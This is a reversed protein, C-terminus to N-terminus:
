DGPHEPSKKLRVSNIDLTFGLKELKNIDSNSSLSDTIEKIRQTKKHQRIEAPTTKAAINHHQKQAPNIPEAKNEEVFNEEVFKVKIAQGLCQSLAAEIKQQTNKTILAKIKQNPKLKYLNNNSSELSSNIVVQMAAGKLKLSQSLQYWSSEDQEVAKTPLLDDAASSVNNESSLTSELTNTPMETAIVKEPTIELIADPVVDKKDNQHKPLLTPQLASLRLLAMGLGSEASPALPIHKKAKIALQYYSQLLELSLQESIDILRSKSCSICHIEQTLQYISAAYFSQALADLVVIPDKGLTIIRNSLNILKESDSQIIYGLLEDVIEVEVIGLMTEVAENLVKGNSFAIAQDTLSLADRISGKAAQAICNLAEAQYDIKEAKLVRVLHTYIEKVTLHKLHFQLCRSIITAPLKEADTTALIFKVHQPPEELTKLLANFSHNSLMHVEDILYIKFRGQSPMYQVNELIERTDEVKTRSAADIEILDVFNGNKIAICHQCKGCPTSSIGALCNLSKALLRALSTKGVGRTGTFLYAHHLRNHDLGNILSNLVHQQGAVQTFKQPRYKRALVKYSM